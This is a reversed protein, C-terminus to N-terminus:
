RTMTKSSVLVGIQHKIERIRQEKEDKSEQIKARVKDSKTKQKGTEKSHTEKSHTEKSNSTWEIYRHLRKSLGTFYMSHVEGSTLSTLIISMVEEDDTRVWLAKDILYYRNNCMKGVRIRKVIGFIELARISDMVTMRSIGLEETLFKIGVYTKQTKNDAHRCLGNYVAFANAGLIRSYGKDIFDNDTFYWGQKRLDRIQIKKHVEEM